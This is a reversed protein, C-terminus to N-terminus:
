DLDEIFGKIREWHSGEWYYKDCRKCHWFREQREFVGDPVKGKVSEKPVEELASNCVTCRTMFLEPDPRYKKIVERLDSELEANGLFMADMNRRLARGYMEKDRTLLIRGEKEAMALIESDEMGKAYETDFGLIRLWKALTGLMEDCIFREVSM